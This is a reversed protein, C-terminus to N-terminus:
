DVFVEAVPGFEVAERVPSAFALAAEDVAVAV